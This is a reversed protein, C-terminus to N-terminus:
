NVIYWQVHTFCNIPPLMCFNVLLQLQLACAPLRTPAPLCAANGDNPNQLTAQKGLISFTPLQEGGGGRRHAHTHWDNYFPKGALITHARTVYSPRWHAALM